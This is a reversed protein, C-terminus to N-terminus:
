GAMGKAIIQTVLIDILHRKEISTSKLSIDTKLMLSIIDELSKESFKNANNMAKQYRYVNSRKEFDSHVTQYSIGNKKALKCRHIDIFSTALAGLVAIEDTGQAYLTNLTELAKVPKKNCILDIVDFIRAELTKVGIADVTEKTIKEYNSAAAYKEVECMILSINKGVNQVIYNATEKDLPAGLNKAKEQALDALYKDNIEKVIHLLGQKKALEILPAYKKGSLAKEEDYTLTVAFHTGDSDTIISCLKEVYEDSLESIDFDKVVILRDGFFSVTQALDAMEDIDFKANDFVSISDSDIFNDEAIKSIVKLNDACVFSDKSLVLWLKQMNTNDIKYGAALISCM